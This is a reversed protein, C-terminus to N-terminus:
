IKGLHLYVYGIVLLEVRLYSGWFFEHVYVCPAKYLFIWPWMTQFLLFSFIFHFFLIDMLLLVSWYFTTYDYLSVIFIFLHFSCIDVHILRVFVIQLLFFCIVNYNKHYSVNICCKKFYLVVRSPFHLLHTFYVDCHYVGCNGRSLFLHCNVIFNLEM